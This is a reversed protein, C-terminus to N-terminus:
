VVVWGAYEAGEPVHLFHRKPQAPSMLEGETTQSEVVVHPESAMSNARERAKHDGVGPISM